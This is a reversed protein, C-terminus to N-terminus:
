IKLSEALDGAFPQNVYVPLNPAVSVSSGDKAIRAAVSVGMGAFRHTTSARVAGIIQQLEEEYRLLTPFTALREFDPTHLSGFLGIRTNTGGIDVGIYSGTETVLHQTHIMNGRSLIYFSVCTYM